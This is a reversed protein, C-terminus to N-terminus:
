GGAEKRFNGISSEAIPESFSEGLLSFGFPESRLRRQDSAIALGKMSRTRDTRELEPASGLRSRETELSDKQDLATKM